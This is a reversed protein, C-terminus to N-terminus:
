NAFVRQSPISKITISNRRTAAFMWQVIRPRSAGCLIFRAIGFFTEVCLLSRLFLAKPSPDHSCRIALLYALNTAHGSFGSLM